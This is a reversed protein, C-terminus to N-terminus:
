FNGSGCGVDLLRGGDIAKLYMINGGVIEKLPGICSFIRGLLDLLGGKIDVSYGYRRLINNKIARRLSAFSEKPSNELQHTYYESYLKHIDTPIPRPNM